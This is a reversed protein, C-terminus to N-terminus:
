FGVARIDCSNDLYPSISWACAHVRFFTHTIDLCSALPMFAHITRVCRSAADTQLDMNMNKTQVRQMYTHPGNSCAHLERMTTETLTSRTQACSLMICADPRTWARMWTLVHGYCTLGWDHVCKMLSLVWGHVCTTTRQMHTGRQLEHVGSRPLKYCRMFTVM